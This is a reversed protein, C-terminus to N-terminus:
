VAPPLAKPKLKPKEKRVAIAGKVARPPPPAPSEAAAEGSSQRETLLDVNLGVSAALVVLTATRALRSLSRRPPSAEAPAAPVEPLAPGSLAPLPLAARARAALEPDVLALEPSLPEHM